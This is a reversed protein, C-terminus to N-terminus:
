ETQWAAYELKQQFSQQNMWNKAGNEFSQLQYAEYRKAATEYRISCQEEHLGQNEIVSELNAIQLQAARLNSAPTILTLTNENENEHHPRERARRSRDRSRSNLAATEQRRAESMTPPTEPARAPATSGGRPVVTMSRYETPVRPYMESRTQKDPGCAQPLRRGSPRAYSSSPVGRHDGVAETEGHFEIRYPQPHRSAERAKNQLEDRPVDDLEMKGSCISASLRLNNGILLVVLFIPGNSCWWRDILMHVVHCAVTASQKHKQARSSDLYSRLVFSYSVPCVCFVSM